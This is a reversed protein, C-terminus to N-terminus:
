LAWTVRRKQIQSKKPADEGSRMSQVRVISRPMATRAPLSLVQVTSGSEQIDQSGRSPDHTINMCACSNRSKKYQLFSLAGSTFFFSVNLYAMPIIWTIKYSSYYMFQDQRLKLHYMLLACLLLIGTFFSIFVDIFLIYKTQPIMYTFELGLFLNHFFSLNLVLIMIIRVVKLEDEPWITTYTWPSHSKRNKKTESNLEVWDDMIIGLVLLILAWSSFLMNTAQINRISKEVM